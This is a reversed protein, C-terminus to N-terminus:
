ACLASMRVVRGHVWCACAEVQERKSRSASSWAAVAEEKLHTHEHVRGQLAAWRLPRLRVGLGLRGCSCAASRM